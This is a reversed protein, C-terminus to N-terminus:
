KQDMEIKAKGVARAFEIILTATREMLPMISIAWENILESLEEMKKNLEKIEDESLNEIKIENM